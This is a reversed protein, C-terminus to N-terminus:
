NFESSIVDVRFLSFHPADASAYHKSLVPCTDLMLQKMNIDTCESAIGSVRVWERTGPKLATIQMKENEKLQTYVAKNDATSIYLGGDYEMIAGFPRGVPFDNNVTLVWFSGCEKIFEYIRSM